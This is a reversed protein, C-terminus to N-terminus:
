QAVGYALSAVSCALSHSLAFIRQLARVQRSLTEDAYESTSSVAPTQSKPAANASAARLREPNPPASM